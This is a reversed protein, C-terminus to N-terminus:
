NLELLNNLISSEFIEKATDGMYLLNKTKRM